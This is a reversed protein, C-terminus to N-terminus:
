SYTEDLDLEDEEPDIIDEDLIDTPETTASTPNLKAALKKWERTIAGKKKTDMAITSEEGSFCTEVLTEMMDDRTLGLSQLDAVVETPTKSTQFLTARLVDRTDMLGSDETQMNQKLQKIMRHHKLRKSNKGLWAPFIQFPAPGQVVTAATVVATMAAPLLGWAQQKRIRADIMDWTSLSDAAKWCRELATDSDKSKGAAAVYGEAVMLPTINPDVFLWQTREDISPPTKSTGAGFLKGVASFMDTRLIEDKSATTSGNSSFQLGNVIARIDNGNRECLTELDSTSLSLQEEQLIRSLSKAIATKTPRSFRVDLCHSALTRLKPSSRDNAICLLPFVCGQKIVRTIEALGGRDGASMGDVEDLVIVRKQGIQASTGARDFLEKLVSASRIDSANFEVVEYGLHKCLLHATTTKGIGPPGTLLAAHPVKGTPFAQFWQLLDKITSAHGIIEQLSKPRYQDVWLDNSQKGVIDAEYLLLPCHQNEQNEQIEQLKWSHESYKSGVLL